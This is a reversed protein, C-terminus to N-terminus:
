AYDWEVTLQYWDGSPNPVQRVVKLLKWGKAELQRKAFEEFDPEDGPVLIYARKGDSKRATVAM